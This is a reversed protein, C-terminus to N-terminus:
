KFWSMKRIRQNLYTLEYSGHYIYYKYTIANCQKHHEATHCKEARFSCNDFIIVFLLLFFFAKNYKSSTDNLFPVFPPPTTPQLTTGTQNLALSPGTTTPPGNPLMLCSRSVVFLLIFLLMIFCSSSTPRQLSSGKTIWSKDGPEYCSYCSPYLM